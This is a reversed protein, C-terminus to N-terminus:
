VECRVYSFNSKLGEVIFLIPNWKDRKNLSKGSAETAFFLLSM